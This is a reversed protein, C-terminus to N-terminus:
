KKSFFKGSSTITYNRIKTRWTTDRRAAGTKLQQQAYGNTIKTLIKNELLLHSLVLLVLLLFYFLVFFFWYKLVQSMVSPNLNLFGIERSDLTYKIDIRKNLAMNLSKKVKNHWQVQLWHRFIKDFTLFNFM